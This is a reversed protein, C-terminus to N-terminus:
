GRIIVEFVIPNRDIHRIELFIVDTGKVRFILMFDALQAHRSARSSYELRRTVM